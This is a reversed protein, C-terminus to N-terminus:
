IIFECGINLYASRTKNKTDQIFQYWYISQCCSLNEVCCKHRDKAVKEDNITM